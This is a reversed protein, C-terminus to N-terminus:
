LTNGDADKKESHKVEASGAEIYGTFGCSDFMHSVNALSNRCDNFLTSRLSAKNLPTGKGLNDCKAFMYSTNTLNKCNLFTFVDSTIGNNEQVLTGTM